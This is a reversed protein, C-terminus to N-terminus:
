DVLGITVPNSVFDFPYNCCYAYHMTIGAAGSISPVNLQASSRGQEDLVGTFDSFIYTNLLTMELDSFWDWNVPLTTLGGPLTTGPSTGSVGGVILYNRNANDLGASLTFNIVGGPTISIEYKDAWLSASCDLKLDPNGWLAGWEFIEYKDVNWLGNTYMERLSWQQGEGLTFNGSTICTTFYYDLSQSSGSDPTTWAPMGFAPKTAGLFGVAGQQLMMQGINDRDTDSNSCADAFIISPYSEDLEPCTGTDVFAESGSYLIHSSYPSGHGAYNVFCYKGSSWVSKVNSYRLDYDMPYSSIGDEYLRTLSWGAMWPHKAPDAKYEMLVATDTDPWFFAGLLLINKKFAPDNNQEYAVSKDCIKQVTLKDSWPIRGVNVEVYFDVPDSDEGWKHDQDKDWSQNDPKSLEAFYYDTEPKGCGVDQWCRRMPVDDYHGVLLVDEIGWAGSPYYEFLFNRMKEALDYGLFTSNIWSTTVVKASRGKMAEWEVLPQVAMELSDQTIIIFDYLGRGGASATDKYWAQAQDYNFVIDRAIRETRFLHDDVLDRPIGNVPMTYHVNVTVEPHYVLGGSMPHYTFPAVRVDVLNYRRYGATRVFEVPSPPYSDDSGYIAKLNEEYKKKLNQPISPNEKGILRAPSLPKIWYAESLVIEEGGAFTVETVEAGPPIALAFIKAPLNPAGPIGIRGFGEVTVEHGKATDQIDFSETNITVRVTGEDAAASDM